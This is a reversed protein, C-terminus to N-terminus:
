VHVCFVLLLSECTPCASEWEAIPHEKPRRGLPYIVTQRGDVRPASLPFNEGCRPCRVGQLRPVVAPPPTPPPAVGGARKKKM